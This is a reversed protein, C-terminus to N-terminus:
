NKLFSYFVIALAIIILPYVMYDIYKMVKGIKTQKQKKLQENLAVKQKQPMLLYGIIVVAILLIRIYREANSPFILYAVLILFIMTGVVLVAILLDKKRVNRTKANENDNNM